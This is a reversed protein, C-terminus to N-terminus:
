QLFVKIFYTKLKQLSWFVTNGDSIQIAFNKPSKFIESVQEGIKTHVRKLPDISHPLEWM